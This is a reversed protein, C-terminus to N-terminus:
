KILKKWHVQARQDDPALGFPKTNDGAVFQNAQHDVMTDYGFVNVALQQTLPSTNTTVIGEFGKAKALRINEEEMAQMVLVNEKTDLDLSTGMMFSHVIKGEEKPLYKEKIPAELYELYEFVLSLKSNVEFEEEKAMDLNLATGVSKGNENKLVFCLGSDILSEWMAELVEVYDNPKIDPALWQELEAKNYFSGVLM